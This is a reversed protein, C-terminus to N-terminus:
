CPPTLSVPNPDLIQMAVLFAREEYKWPEKPHFDNFHFIHPCSPFLMAFSLPSKQQSPIMQKKETTFFLVLSIWLPLTVALYTWFTNELYTNLIFSLLLLPFAIM